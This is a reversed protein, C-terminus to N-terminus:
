PCVGKNYNEIPWILINNRTKFPQTSLLKQLSQWYVNKTGKEFVLITTDIGLDDFLMRRLLVQREDLGTGWYPPPQFLERSKVEVIGYKGAGTKYLWDIQQINHIGKSKLWVRGLREAAIGEENIGVKMGGFM